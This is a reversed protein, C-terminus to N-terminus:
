KISLTNVLIELERMPKAKNENPHFVFGEAFVIRGRKEDVVARIYSPGGMFDGEVDWWGRIEVGYKGKFDQDKRIPVFVDSYKMYSGDIEGPIYKKVRENRIALLKETSLDQEGTYPGEFLLLGQELESTTSSKRLWVFEENDIAVRYSEPKRIGFNWKKLQKQYFNDKKPHKSGLMKKKWALNEHKHALRLIDDQKEVLISALDEKSSSLIYFIRQNKAFVDEQVVGFTGPKDRKIKLMQDITKSPLIKKLLAANQTNLFVFISHHKQFFGKFFTEDTHQVKFQPEGPPPQGEIRKHFVTKINEVFVSDATKTDAITVVEAIQGTSEPLLAKQEEPSSECAILSILISIVFLNTKM